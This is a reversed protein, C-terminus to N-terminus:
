LEEDRIDTPDDFKIEIHHLFLELASDLTPTKHQKCLTLIYEKIVKNLKEVDKRNVNAHFRVIKHLSCDFLAPDHLGRDILTELSLLVDETHQHMTENNDFHNLYKPNQEYFKAFIQRAHENIDSKIFKWATILASRHGENLGISESLNEFSASFKRVFM